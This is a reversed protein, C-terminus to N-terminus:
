LYEGFNYLRVQLDMTGQASTHVELEDDEHPIAVCQQTELYFHEQGGIKIEGKVIHKYKSWDSKVVEENELLSSHIVFPQGLYSDAKIADEITLIPQDKTCKVKVLHAARRATEHDVAVIAGIPQGHYTIKDKVFVPTDSTHGLMAGEMVDKADIYTIVGDMALAESTDVSQLTGSSIPSMVFVMHLCNAVQIDNCYAAEGTVHKVGSAHPLPRGVPDHHPQNVPVQQYVQTSILGVPIEQGIETIENRDAIEEIHMKESVELFFKFFFSLTLAQRFRPMGGPVGPPLPFEKSINDFGEELLSKNWKKGKLNKMTNLALKTTPAMGGFSIRIKELILTEPNVVASFAGTVIAIDDERRQAQKYVRFIQNKISYPIILAKVIEDAEVGTKRYGPFFNQDITIERPGRQMSDLIVQLSNKISEPSGTFFKTYQMSCKANTSEQRYAKDSRTGAGTEKIVGNIVGNSEQSTATEEKKCETAKKVKCCQEGMPCGNDESVKIQGDSKVAFSYFAELIPRYGTCRCLNGQLAENVEAKTPTPSNRLLAYMAMVFGPSCFGCQTGHTMALREQVPHLRKSVVSGLGEVTTVAKGFVGCIPMLCANASYHRIQNDRLSIESIMVTCAGCGGENCGIKTGTLHVQLAENIEAKTPTPSNRLLAYMAMVFGPSCFGCQTGHTMALREQVPHLRKSVVSGLGEVTTVAKGFVGCIPMLCANASYHRIQNDRLSIESIM